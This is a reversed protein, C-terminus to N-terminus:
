PAFFFVFRIKKLRNLVLFHLRNMCCGYICECVCEYFSVILTYFGICYCVFFSSSGFSFLLSVLPLPLSLSSCKVCTGTLIFVYTHVGIASIFFVTLTLVHCPHLGTCIKKLWGDLDSRNQFHFPIFRFSVAIFSSPVIYACSYTRTCGFDGVVLVCGQALACYVVTMCM